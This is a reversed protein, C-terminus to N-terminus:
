LRCPDVIRREDALHAQVDAAHEPLARAQGSILLPPSAIIGAMSAGWASRALRENSALQAGLGLAASAGAMGGTFFYAPIEWTWVPEKIVPRGYYSVVEEAKVTAGASM